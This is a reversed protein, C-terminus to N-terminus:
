DQQVAADPASQKGPTPNGEPVNDNGEVRDRYLASRVLLMFGVPTTITLFVAILIEHVSLRGRLVSFCIMSGVLIFGTGLTSGLTPAHVREYFTKLRLLGVSGTLTLFAGMFVCFATLLAAWPPLNEFALEIDIM